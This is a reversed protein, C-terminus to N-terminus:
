AKERILPSSVVHNHTALPGIHIVGDTDEVINELGPIKSVDILTTIDKRVGREIELILDTGGAIIRAEEGFKALASVAEDLSGAMIYKQWM